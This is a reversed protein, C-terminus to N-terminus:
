RADEAILDQLLKMRAEVYEGLRDCDDTTPDTAAFPPSLAFVAAAEAHGAQSLGEHLGKAWSAGASTL